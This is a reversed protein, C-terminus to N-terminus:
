SLPTQGRKKAVEKLTATDIDKMIKSQERNFSPRVPKPNPNYPSYGKNTKWDSAPLDSEDWIHRGKLLGEERLAEREEPTYTQLLQRFSTQDSPNHYFNSVNNSDVVHKGLWGKNDFITSYPNEMAYAKDKDPKKLNRALSKAGFIGAAGVLAPMILKGLGASKQVGLIEETWERDCSRKGFPLFM